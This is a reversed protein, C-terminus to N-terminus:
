IEMAISRPICAIRRADCLILDVGLPFACWTPRASWWRPDIGLVRLEAVSEIGPGTLRQAPGEGVAACDLVLTAGREPALLTGRSPVLRAPDRTGDALVFAADDGAAARAGLRSRDGDSLLGHADHLTTAADCLGALIALHARAGGSWGGLDTVTGPKAWAELLARFALRQGVALWPHDLAIM